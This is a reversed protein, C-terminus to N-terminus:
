EFSGMRLLGGVVGVRKEAGKTRREQRRRETEHIKDRRADEMAFSNVGSRKGATKRIKAEEGYGNRSSAPAEAAWGTSSSGSSTSALSNTTARRLLSPARFSSTTSAARPAAFALRASSSAAAKSANRKLWLRDVVPVGALRGKPAEHEKDIRGAPCPEDEAESDSGGAETIPIISGKPEELLNWLAERIERMNSAKKGGSTRGAHGTLRSGRNQGSGGLPGMPQSDAVVGRVGRRNSQSASGSQSQSPSEGGSLEAPAAVIDLEDASGRDEMTRLFAQNGPLQAMKKVREDSFLAKQMKAFQRRKLRRRAEGGDDSDSLDYDAGRKRRLMGTTIDKFLREVEKEDSARERDSPPCM